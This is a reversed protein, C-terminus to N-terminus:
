KKRRREWFLTAISGVFGMAAIGSFADIEPVKTYGVAFAGVTSALLLLGASVILKMAKSRVTKGCSYRLILDFGNATIHTVNNFYNRTDV